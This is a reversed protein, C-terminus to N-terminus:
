IRDLKVGITYNKKKLNVLHNWQGSHFSTIEKESYTKESSNLLPSDTYKKFVLYSILFVRSKVGAQNQHTVEDENVKNLFHSSM